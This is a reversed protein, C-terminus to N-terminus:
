VSAILAGAKAADGLARQTLMKALHRRYVAGAHADELPELHRTEAAAACILEADLRRGRMVDEASTLRVPTVDVGNLTISVREVTQDEGLELLAAAGAIAFDGHRRAFEHFGWGHGARWCPFEVATVIEDLEIAVDLYGRLFERAPLRRAGRTSRVEITADQALALMPLEASPDAHSLSGGITGRNRTQRHGVHALGAKVLPLRQAIVDSFELDRQRTMAGIRIVGDREEIGTLEPIRALDVLHDPQVFRFNMMAILSQGGALIKANELNSLLDLAEDLSIPRHYDFPAPKM